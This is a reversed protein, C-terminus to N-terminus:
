IHFESKGNGSCTPLNKLAAADNMENFIEEFKNDSPDPLVHRKTNAPPPFYPDLSIRDVYSCFEVQVYKGFSKPDTSGLISL